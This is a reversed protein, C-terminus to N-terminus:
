SDIQMQLKCVLSPFGIYYQNQNWNQNWNQNNSMNTNTKTETKTIRKNQNQNRNQNQNNLFKLPKYQNQNQELMGSFVHFFRDWSEVSNKWM